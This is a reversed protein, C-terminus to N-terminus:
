RLALVSVASGRLAKPIGARDRCTASSQRASTAIVPFRSPM